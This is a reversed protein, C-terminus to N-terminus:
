NLNHSIFRSLKMSEVADRYCAVGFSFWKALEWASRVADFEEAQTQM